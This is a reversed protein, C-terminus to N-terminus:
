RDTGRHLAHQALGRGRGLARGQPEQDPAALDRGQADGGSGAAAVAPEGAIAEEGGTAQTVAFGQDELAVSTLLLNVEDDDVLLVKPREPLDEVSPQSRIM